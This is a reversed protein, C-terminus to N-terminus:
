GKLYKMPNVAKRGKRLSFHLQPREVRGTNGTEAIVQGQKVKTGKQVKINRTHAYASIWGGAHKVILLNGYGKLGKGSYVVVGNAAAKVPTGVPTAINIGDNHVGGTKSGFSSIVKGNAPWMFKSPAPGKPESIKVPKTGKVFRKLLSPRETEVPEPIEGPRTLVYRIKRPAFKMEKKPLEKVVIKEQRAQKIPLPKYTIPKPAAQAAAYDTGEHTTYPLRLQIGPTITYPAKLKNLKALASVSVGKREGIDYLTDGYMVAYLRPRPLILEQGAFLMYPVELKNAEIIQRSPISYRTEIDYLTDGARVSVRKITKEKRLKQSLKESYAKGKEDGFYFKGHREIPAVEQTKCASLCLVVVIFSLFALYQLIRFKIM